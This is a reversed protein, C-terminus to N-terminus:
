ALGRAPREAARRAAGRRHSRADLRGAEWLLGLGVVLGLLLVVSQALQDGLLPLAEIHTLHYLTHPAQWTLSAFAALRVLAATPRAVAALVVLALALNTAGFDRLLHENYPGDVAVWVRGLGPFHDFFARPALQIWFGIVLSPLALFLLGARIRALAAGSGGGPRGSRDAALRALGLRANPM